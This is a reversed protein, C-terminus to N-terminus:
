CETAHLEGGIMDRNAGGPPVMPYVNEAADIPVNILGPGPEALARALTDRPDDAAGLDWARVGFGRAITVFDPEAHFRTAQYRGGYFLEQHQRVLGLHANNLLVIKVDVNQEVATALEQLNMLLSGDGSFCVVPRGPTALAAGIAVPLGFGMTGLGGSTLWQRPRTCPFAQAAWMQHQGVDTTVIADPPLVAATHRIIGHPDLPDDPARMVLPYAARLRAIRRSWAPRTAPAVASALARLTGGVDARIALTPEKIKGLESADIDVHIIRADPCFEVAKGTARDDFRIGLGVLLDCEEIIM